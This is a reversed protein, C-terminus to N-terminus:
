FASIQHIPGEPPTSLKFNRRAFFFSISLSSSCKTERRERERRERVEGEVGVEREERWVIKVV